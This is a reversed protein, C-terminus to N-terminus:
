IAYIYDNEVKMRCRYGISCLCDNVRGYNEDFIEIMIVPRNRRLTEGAGQLVMQEYGEVDIKIFDIHEPIRFDDLRYMVTDAYGGGPQKLM